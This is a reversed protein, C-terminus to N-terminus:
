RTIPRSEGSKKFSFITERHKKFGARSVRYMGDVEDVKLHGREPQDLRSAGQLRGFHELLDSGPAKLRFPGAGGSDCRDRLDLAPQPAQVHRYAM